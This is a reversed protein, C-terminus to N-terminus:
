AMLSRLLDICVTCLGTRSICGFGYRGCEVNPTGVLGARGCEGRNVGLKLTGKGEGFLHGIWCLLAWSAGGIGINVVEEEDDLPTVRIFLLAKVGVENRVLLGSEGTM